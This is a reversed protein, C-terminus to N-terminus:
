ILKQDIVVIGNVVKPINIKSMFPSIFEDDDWADKM